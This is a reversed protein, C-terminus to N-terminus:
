DGLTLALEFRTARPYGCPKVALEALRPTDLLLNMLKNLMTAQLTYRAVLATPIPAGCAVATFPRIGYKNRLSAIISLLDPCIRM